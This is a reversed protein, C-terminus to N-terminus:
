QRRARLPTGLLRHPGEARHRGVDQRHGLPERRVLRGVHRHLARALIRLRQVHELLRSSQPTFVSQVRQERAM